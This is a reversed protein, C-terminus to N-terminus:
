GLRCERAPGAGVVDLRRRPRDRRERPLARLLPRPRGRPIGERRPLRAGTRRRPAHRARSVGGTGDRAAALGCRGRGAHGHERRDSVQRQGRSGGGARQSSSSARAIALSPATRSASSTSRAQVHSCHRPACTPIPTRRWSSCDASGCPARRRTVCSGTRSWARRRARARPISRPTRGLRPRGARQRDRARRSRLELPRFTSSAVLAQGTPSHSAPVRIQAHRLADEEGSAELRELAFERITELM